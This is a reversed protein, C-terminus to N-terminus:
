RHTFYGDHHYVYPRNRDRGRTKRTYLKEKASQNPGTEIFMDYCIQLKKLLVSLMMNKNSTEACIDEAYANIERELCMLDVVSNVDSKESGFSLLFLPTQSPYNSHIAVAVNLTEERALKAAYFTCDESILGCDLLDSASTFKLVDELYIMKWSSLTCVVKQSGATQKNAYSPIILQELQSLQKQLSLRAEIRARIANIVSQFHKVNVASDPVYSHIAENPLYNMGCIWQVWYFPYGVSAVHSSMPGMALKELQYKNAPNPSEKGMDASLLDQLLADTSLLSSNETTKAEDSLTLKIKVTNICLTRFHRFKLAIEYKGKCKLKIHVTLPHKKLLQKRQSESQSKGKESKVKRRDRKGDSEGGDNNGETESDDSDVPQMKDELFETKAVQLDGEIDVSLQNDCVDKYAKAQIYLVYLPRPLYQAREFLLREAEIPMGMYEQVPMTAKIIQDLRPKLNTLYDSKKNIEAEAFKKEELFKNKQIALDKRRKLEFDLRALMQQHSDTKTIEPKSIEKSAETYFKEVDLLDIDEDKSSFNMCQQIEKKMHMVEYLLNQLELHLGDVKSKVENTNEKAKKGRIQALRNLKKLNTTLVIADLRKELIEEKVNDSENSKKKLNNIESIFGEINSCTTCFEELDSASDRSMALEEEYLLVKKDEVETPKKVVAAKTEESLNKIEDMRMTKTTSDSSRSSKRRPKEVSTNDDKSKTQKM